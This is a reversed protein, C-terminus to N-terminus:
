KGGDKVNVKVSVGMATNLKNLNRNDDGKPLWKAYSRLMTVVSHGHQAAVWAPDCGAMLALTVSTDRCEKPPRYRVGSIRLAAKFMVRQGQDDHWARKTAPNMFVEKGALHTRARQRDIVAAARANLEVIREKHTKTRTKSEGLVRARCIRITMNVLDVDEWRLAIQESDRLGAFLAFEYYDAVELSRKRLEQLILEVEQPTFPDPPPIEAKLNEVGAVPDSMNQLSKCILEFVGRLPILINNQTKRSLPKHTKGNDDTYGKALAAIRKQVKEHTIQRPNLEGWESVWYSDMHRKYVTLTSHETSRGKIEFFLQCWDSFSREQASQGDASPFDVLGLYRYEPFHAELNFIGQRIEEVIQQRLRVAAKLNSATPKLPLTPRYEKGRWTFRLQIRENLPSVGGTESKRGM